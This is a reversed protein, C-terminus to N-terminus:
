NSKPEAESLKLPYLKKIVEIREKLKDVDGQYYVDDKDAL